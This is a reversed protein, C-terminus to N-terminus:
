GGSQFKVFEFATKIDWGRSKVSVLISELCYITNKLYDYKDQLKIVEEDSAILEELDAKMPRKKLYPMWSLAKLEEESLEGLYWSKKNRRLRLYEGECNRAQKKTQMLLDLYKGHLRPVNAAEGGLNLENILCDKKWEDQIEQLTM